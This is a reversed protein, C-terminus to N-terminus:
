PTLAFVTGTITDAGGTTTTGYLTGTSELLLDGLPKSGDPVAGFSYLVSETWATKGSAPPTLKFVAGNGSAGGSVATSYLAGANDQVLGASPQAGDPQGAFTHLVSFAWGTKPAAQPTLSFVTGCGGSAACSGAKSATGYLIGNKDFILGAVPWQGEAGGKFSHLVTEGWVTKGSAPPTLSFVTGNDYKGGFSTAGYIVGQSDAILNGNPAAGDSGSFSHLITTTWATHGSSPPTVKFVAGSGGNSATGGYNTTGYLAGASDMILGAMPGAGDPSGAFKHLVTFTWNTATGSPPTLKFVTGCGMPDSACSGGGTLTTGYLAGSKDMLLDGVPLAGNLTGNFAHLVKVTWRKGASVPPTLEFVNGCGGSATTCDNDGGQYTTGILDGKSDAVLGAMPNLGDIGGFSHLITETYPAAAVGISVWGSVIAAAAFLVRGM